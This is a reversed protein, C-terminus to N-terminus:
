KISITLERDLLPRTIKKDVSETKLRKISCLRWLGIESLPPDSHFFNSHKGGDHQKGDSDSDSGSESFIAAIAYFMPVIGSSISNFLAQIRLPVPNVISKIDPRFPRLFVSMLLTGCFKVAFPIPNFIMKVAFPVPYIGPQIPLPLPDVSM